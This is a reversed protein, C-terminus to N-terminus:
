RGLMKEWEDMQAYAELFKKERLGMSHARRLMKRGGELDGRDRLILGFGWFSEPNKPDLLWAQNFRAMATKADGQAYLRFGRDAFAKSGAERSGFAGSVQAILKEDGAKLMPVAQRDMGGYMPVQDIGVRSSSGGPSACGAVLVVVLSGLWRLIARKMMWDVVVSGRMLFAVIGNMVGGYSRVM